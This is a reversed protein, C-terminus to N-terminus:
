VCRILIQFSHRTCIEFLKFGHQRRISRSKTELESERCPMSQAPMLKIQDCLALAETYEEMGVLEDVQELLETPHMLHVQSKGDQRSSAVSSGSRSGVPEKPTTLPTRRRRCAIRRFLHLQLLWQMNM